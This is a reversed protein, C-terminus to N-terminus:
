FGRSSGTWAGTLYSSTILRLAAFASPISTGKDKWCRASSTISHDPAALEDRQEAARGRPRERRARLPLRARSEYAQQERLRFTTLFCSISNCRNALAELLKTPGFAM